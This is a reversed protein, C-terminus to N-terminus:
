KIEIKTLWILGLLDNEAAVIRDYDYRYPDNNYYKM